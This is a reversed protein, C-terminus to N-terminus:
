CRWVQLTSVDRPPSFWEKTLVKITEWTCPGQRNIAFLPPAFMLFSACCGRWGFRGVNHEAHVAIQVSEWKFVGGPFLNVIESTESCSKALAISSFCGLEERPVFWPCSVHCADWSVRLRFSFTQDSPPAVPFTMEEDFGNPKMRKHGHINDSSFIPLWFNQANENWLKVQPPALSCTLESILKVRWPAIKTHLSHVFEHMNM